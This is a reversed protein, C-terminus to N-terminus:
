SGLAECPEDKMVLDPTIDCGVPQCEPPIAAVTVLAQCTSSGADNTVTLIYLTTVSPSVTTTGGAPDVSGVGNDIVASTPTNATTWTLVSSGGPIITAPDASLSCTPPLVTAGFTFNPQAGGAFNGSAGDFHVLTEGSVEALGVNYIRDSTDNTPDPDSYPDVAIDYVLSRASWGSGSNTSSYIASQPSLGLGAGAPSQDIWYVIEEGSPGLIMTPAQAFNETTDIPEAAQWVPASTPTARLMIVDPGSNTAPIAIFDGVTEIVGDCGTGVGSGGFALGSIAFTHNSAMSGNRAIRVYKYSAVGFYILHCVDSQRILEVFSSFAGTDITTESSWTSVGDFDRFYIALNTNDDGYFIRFTSDSFRVTYITRGHLAPSSSGVAPGYTATSMDFTSITVAHTTLASAAIYIVDSSGDWFFNLFPVPGPGNGADQETWITGGDTSNFVMFTRGSGTPNEAVICWLSGLHSFHYSNHSPVSNASASKNAVGSTDVLIPTPM